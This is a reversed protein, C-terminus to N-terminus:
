GPQGACRTIGPFMVRINNLRREDMIRGSLTLLPFDAVTEIAVSRHADIWLTGDGGPPAHSFRKLRLVLTVCDIAQELTKADDEGFQIRILSLDVGIGAPWAHRVRTRRSINRLPQGARHGTIRPPYRWPYPSNVLLDHAHV